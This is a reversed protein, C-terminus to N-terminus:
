RKKTKKRRFDRKEGYRQVFTKLFIVVKSTRKNIPVKFNGTGLKKNGSTLSSVEQQETRRALKNRSSGRIAEEEENTHKKDAGSKFARM